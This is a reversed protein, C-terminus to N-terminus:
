KAARMSEAMGAARARAMNIFTENASIRDLIPLVQEPAMFRRKDWVTELQLLARNVGLKDYKAASQLTIFTQETESIREFWDTLLAADPDDTYNFKVQQKIPGSEYRFTKMGMFAVKAPSELPRTFFKLKEALAFMQAADAERIQFHLPPNDDKPDDRYQAAGSPEVSIEVFAPVSNPFSKTFILRADDASLNSVALGLLFLCSWKM